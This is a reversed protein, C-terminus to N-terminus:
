VGRHLGVGWGPLLGIQEWQELESCTWWALLLPLFSPRVSPVSCSRSYRSHLALDSLGAKHWLGTRGAMSSTPHGAAYIGELKM